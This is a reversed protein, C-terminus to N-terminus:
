ASQVHATMGNAAGQPERQPIISITSAGSGIPKRKMRAIEDSPTYPMTSAPQAEFLLYASSPPMREVACIIEYSIASPILVMGTSSSAPLTVSLRMTFWCANSVQFTRLRVTANKMKMIAANASVFRRGNSRGSASDSSMAPYWESYLAIFNEINKMASYAFMTVALASIVVSKKPPQSMGIVRQSLLACLRTADSAVNTNKQTFTKSKTKRKM